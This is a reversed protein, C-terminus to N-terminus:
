PGAPLMSSQVQAEDRFRRPLAGSLALALAMACLAAIYWAPGMPYQHAWWSVLLPTVGGFVAYAVNYAFSLGSFRISPPFVRVMTVPVAAVFGVCLGTLAYLGDLATGAVGAALAYFLVLSSVALGLSGTVVTPALGFRDVAAGALVCGLTLACTALVNAGHLEAGFLAQGLTPLLLIMVVIAGTLMWTMAMSVVVGRLHRRLVVALPLGQELAKRQRLAEFVPTEALYRRLIVALLGFVGGIFFPIRWGGALLAPEAIVAHLLGAVVSGLLIGLTLGATLLGCALGTRSGPVHEAVFVWAGPVEGGVAVGQVVRLLLLALPAFLGATAFTPLAGILLTPVAMLLVSLTFMRKRGHRDGFHAMVVGGLPRALYAVAFLGYAQLLRLWDPTDPPFFVRGIVGAFYVFIVFDYFELAGGLSALLLTKADGRRLPQRRGDPSPGHENMSM